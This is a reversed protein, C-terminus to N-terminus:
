FSNDGDGEIEQQQKENGSGMQSSVFADKLTDNMGSFIDTIGM